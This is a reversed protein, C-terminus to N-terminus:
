NKKKEPLKELEQLIQEHQLEEHVEKLDEQHEKWFKKSRDSRGEEFWDRSLNDDEAVQAIIMQSDYVSPKKTPIKPFLSSDVPAEEGEEFALKQALAAQLAAQPNSSFGEEEANEIAEVAPKATGSPPTATPYPPIGSPPTPAATEVLAPQAPPTPQKSQRSARLAEPPPSPRNVRAQPAKTEQLSTARWAPDEEVPFSEVKEDGLESLQKEPKKSSSPTNVASLPPVLPSAGLKPFPLKTSARPSAVKSEPAFAPLDDRSIMGPLDKAEPKGPFEIGELAQIGPMEPISLSSPRPAALSDDSKSAQANEEKWAGELMAPPIGPMEPISLSPSSVAGLAPLGSSTLKPFPLHTRSPRSTELSTSPTKSTAPKPPLAPPPLAVNAFADSIGQSSPAFTSSQETQMPAKVADLDGDTTAEQAPPTNEERLIPPKASVPLALTQSRGELMSPSFGKIRVTKQDTWEDDHDADSFAEVLSATESAEEQISAQALAEMVYVPTVRTQSGSESSAADSSPKSALPLPM